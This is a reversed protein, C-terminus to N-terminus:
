KFIYDVFEQALAFWMFLSRFILESDGKFIAVIIILPLYFLTCFCMMAALAYAALALACKIILIVLLIPLTLCGDNRRSM